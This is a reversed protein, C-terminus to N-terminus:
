RESAEDRNFKFGKTNFSLASFTAKGEHGPVSNMEENRSFAIIEMENGLYSEPISFSINVIRQDPVIITRIM